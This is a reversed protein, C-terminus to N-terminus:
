ALLVPYAGLRLLGKALGLLHGLIGVGGLCAEQGGGAMVQQLWEVGSAQEGRGEGLLHVGRVHLAGDAMDIARQLGGFLQEAGQEVDGLQIGAGEGWPAAVKGQGIDDPRQTGLELHHGLITAEVQHHHRGGGPDVAVRLHQATDHLVEEGVGNTVGLLTPHQQATSPMGASEGDLHPVGAGANGGGLLGFDELLEAAEVLGRTVLLAFLPEAQPEGDGVAHAPHEVVGDRHAGPLPVAGHERDAHRHDGGLRRGLLALLWRWRATGAVLQGTRSYEADVILGQNEFAHLRHEGAPATLYERGGADATGLRHQAMEVAVRVGNEGVIM